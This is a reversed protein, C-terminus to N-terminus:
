PFWGQINLPLVSASAGINPWRIQLASENSFVRSLNLPPPSPPLLPNAPQIADSVWHIHTQGFEPLYHLIPFGPMNCDMPDCLTPCSKIVSCFCLPTSRPVPKLPVNICCVNEWEKKLTYVETLTPIPTPSPQLRGLGGGWTWLGVAEDTLQFSCALNWHKEHYSLQLCESPPLPPPESFMCEWTTKVRYLWSGLLRAEQTPLLSNEKLLHCLTIRISLPTQFIQFLIQSRSM